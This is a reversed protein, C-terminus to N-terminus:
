RMHSHKIHFDKLEGMYHIQVTIKELFFIENNLTFKGNGIRNAVRGVLAGLYSGDKKKYDDISPFGLVVDRKEGHKDKVIMKLITCGYNTVQIEINENRMSIIDIGRSVNEIIEIM